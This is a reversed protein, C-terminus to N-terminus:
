IMIADAALLIRVHCIARVPAITKGRYTETVVPLSRPPVGEGSGTWLLNGSWRKAREEAAQASSDSYNRNSLNRSKRGLRAKHNSNTLLPVAVASCDATMNTGTELRRSTGE